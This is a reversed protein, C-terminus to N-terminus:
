ENKVKYLYGDMGDSCSVSMSEVGLRDLAYLLIYAGYLIVDHREKLLPHERRKDGMGALKPILKKIGWITLVTNEVTEVSFETLGAELAALTTNTGGVGILKKISLKPFTFIGDLYGWVAKMQSAWVTDCDPAGTMDRAIEGCRVCGARFSAAHEKTVIQMSAGGIDLMAVGSLADEDLGLGATAGIFALRAEDEGSIIEVPVGCETRVRRAFEGGNEAERTASTAYARPIFGDSVAKKSLEKIVALSAEMRDDALRGTRYLGLGLRTTYIERVPITGESEEGFRISNSGLDIIAYRNEM